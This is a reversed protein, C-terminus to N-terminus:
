KFSKDYGSRIVFKPNVYIQQVTQIRYLEERSNYFQACKSHSQGRPAPEGAWDSVM